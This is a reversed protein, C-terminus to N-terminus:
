NLDYYVLRDERCSNGALAVSRQCVFGVGEKYQSFFNKVQWTTDLPTFTGYYPYVFYDTGEINTTLPPLLHEEVSGVLAAGGAIYYDRVSHFEMDDGAHYVLNNQNVLHGASDVRLLELMDYSFAGSNYVMHKVKSYNLGSIISDGIVRVTDISSTATFDVGDNSQYMRYVWLNGNQLNFFEPDADSDSSCSTLLLSTLLFCIIYKM